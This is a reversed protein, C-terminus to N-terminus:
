GGSGTSPAVDSVAAAATASAGPMPELPATLITHGELTFTAQMSDPDLWAQVQADEWAPLPRDSTDRVLVPLAFPFYLDPRLWVFDDFGHDLLLPADTYRDTSGFVVALLRRGGRTASGVLNQGAAETTGTKVGDAGPYSGLLQNLNTLDFEHHTATAPLTISQTKVIQDFLPQHILAYRALKAMDAVSMLNAPDDLGHPDTFHTDEIGLAAARANMRAVFAQETGAEHEALAEAADNGSPLLLGYLLERITLQEGAQVQMCTCPESAANQSITTVADLDGQELTLLATMIKATSAPPLRQDSNMEYLVRGSILDIVIAAKGLIPGPSGSGLATLDPAAISVDPAAAANALRPGGFACLAILQALLLPLM